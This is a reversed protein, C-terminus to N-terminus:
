EREGLHQKWNDLTIPNPSPKRPAQYSAHEDYAAQLVDSTAGLAYVALLHHALHNHFGPPIPMPPFEGATYACLYEGSDNFFIHWKNHNEKLLAILCKTAQATAGPFPAVLSLRPAPFLKNLVDEPISDPHQQTMITRRPPHRPPQARTAAFCCSQSIRVRGPNRPITNLANPTAASSVSPRCLLKTERAAFLPPIIGRSSSRKLLSVAASRVHLAVTWSVARPFVM